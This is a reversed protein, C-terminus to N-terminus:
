RLSSILTNFNTEIVANSINLNKLAQLINSYRNYPADSETLIRDLPLHSIINKGKISMTMAENISFYCGLSVAKEILSIPGSYWHIIPTKLKYNEIYALIEEEAKVSHISIIKKQTSLIQCIKAFAERQADKSNIFNKSFDLGIEGIFSTKNSLELFLPLQNLIECAVQPHFGLALRIRSYKSVHPFGDMFHKPCNTMGIITHGAQSMNSIYTEPNDLMDFHCHTDIM